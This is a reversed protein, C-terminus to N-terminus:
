EEITGIIELKLSSHETVDWRIAPYSTEDKELEAIVWKLPFVVVEQRPPTHKKKSRGYMFRWTEMHDRSYKYVKMVPSNHYSTSGCSRTEVHDITVTGPKRPNVMRFVREGDPSSNSYLEDNINLELSCLCSLRHKEILEQAKILLQEAQFYNLLIIPPKNEEAEIIEGNVSLEKMMLEIFSGNWRPGIGPYGDGREEGRGSISTIYGKSQQRTM